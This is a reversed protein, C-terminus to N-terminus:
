WFFVSKCVLVQVGQLGFLALGASIAAKEQRLSELEYLSAILFIPALFAWLKQTELSTGSVDLLLIFLALLVVLLRGSFLIMDPQKEPKVSRILALLFQLSIPLGAWFFFELVNAPLSILYMVGGKDLMVTAWVWVVYKIVFKEWFFVVMNLGTILRIAVIAILGIVLLVVGANVAQRAMKRNAEDTSWYFRAAMFLLCFFLLALSEWNLLAGAVATLLAVSTWLWSQRNLGYFLFMLVLATIPFMLQHNWAMSFTFGASAMPNLSFIMVGILAATKSLVQKIAFYLPFICLGTVLLFGVAVMVSRQELTLPKVGLMHGIWLGIQDFGYYTLVYAPAKSMMPGRLQGDVGAYDSMHALYNSVSDIKSAITMYSPSGGWPSRLAETGLTQWDGMILYQTLVPTGVFTFCAVILAIVTHDGSRLLRRWMFIGAILFILYAVTLLSRSFWFWKNLQGVFKQNVADAWWYSSIHGVVPMGVPLIMLAVLLLVVFTPVIYFLTRSRFDSEVMWYYHCLINFIKSSLVLMTRKCKQMYVSGMMM